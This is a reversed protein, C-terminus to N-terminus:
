FGVREVLIRRFIHRESSRLDGNEIHIWQGFLGLTVLMENNLSMQLIIRAMM